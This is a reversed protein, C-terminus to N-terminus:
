QQTRPHAPNLLPGWLRALLGEIAGQFQFTRNEEIHTHPYTQIYIIYMYMYIYIYIYIYIFMCVYM